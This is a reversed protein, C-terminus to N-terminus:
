LDGNSAKSYGPDAVFVCIVNYNSYKLLICQCRNMM